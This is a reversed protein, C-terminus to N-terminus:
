LKRMLSVSIHLFTLAPLWPRPEPLDDLDIRSRGFSFICGPNNKSTKWSRSHRLWKLCQASPVAWKVGSSMQLHLLFFFGSKRKKRHCLLWVSSPSKIAWTQILQADNGWVSATFMGNQGQLFALLLMLFASTRHIITIETKISYFCFSFEWPEEVSPLLRM